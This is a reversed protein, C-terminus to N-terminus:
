GTGFVEVNIGVSVNVGKGVKVGVEVNVGSGVKVGVLV